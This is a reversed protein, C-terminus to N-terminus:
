GDLEIAGKPMRALFGAFEEETYARLLNARVYGQKGLYTVLALISEEDESSLTVVADFQGLTWYVDEVTVGVEAAAQRFEAARKVTNQIQSIGIETFTVLMKYRYLM